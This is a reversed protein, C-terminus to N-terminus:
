QALESPRQAGEELMNDGSRHELYKGATCPSVIGTGDTRPRALSLCRRMDSPFLASFHPAFVLFLVLPEIQFDDGNHVIKPNNAKRELELSAVVKGFSLTKFIRAIDSCGLM